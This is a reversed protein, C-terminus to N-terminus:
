DWAESLSDLIQCQWLSCRLDCIRSITPTATAYAQLQLNLEVGSAPVDMRQLLPQLFFPPPIHCGCLLRPHPWLHTPGSVKGRDFNQIIALHLHEKRQWETQM